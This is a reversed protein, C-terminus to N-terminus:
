TKDYYPKSSVGINNLHNVLRDLKPKWMNKFWKTNGFWKVLTPSIAYYTKIFARGYWTKALTNDRYRRLTWVHPCDYSGYVATAVYCGGEHKQYNNSIDNTPLNPNDSTITELGDCSLLAQKDVERMSAPFHISKLSHCGIFALEKIVEVGDEIIVNNLSSCSDFTRTEIVKVSKPIRISELSSCSSFASNSIIKISEPLSISNLSSCSSFAGAGIVEVGSEIVVEKLNKCLFFCHNPITKINGTIIIKELNSCYGFAAEIKPKDLSSLKTDEIRLDSNNPFVVSRITSKYFATRGILFVNNPIVVDPSSGKYSILKGAEIVFDNNTTDGGYINVVNANINNTINYNNIAKEVIFASGCHECIAAEKSNDVKLPAGCNTCKADVLPM